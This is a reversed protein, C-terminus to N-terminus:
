DDDWHVITLVAVFVMTCASFVIITIDMCKALKSEACAKLHFAAPFVFGVQTCFLAGLLGLFNNIKDGLIMTFVITFAVLM